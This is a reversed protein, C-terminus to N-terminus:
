RVLRRVSVKHNLFPGWGFDLNGAPPVVEGKLESEFFYIEEFSKAYGILVRATANVNGMSRAIDYIGKEGVTQLFWKVFPGPLGILSDLYLSTDEVIFEGDYHNFAEKLKARIIKHADIDQIEPLDAVFQELDPLVEQVEKFKNINGTIFKIAM